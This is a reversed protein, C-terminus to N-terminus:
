SIADRLAAALRELRPALKADITGIDTQLRLDGRALAENARIDVAQAESVAAGLSHRLAEADAPHAEILIRRAGRAEAIAASAIDAIRAADLRLSAGLLREALAVAVGLLRDRDRALRENEEARLAIWRAAVSAEAEELAARRAEAAITAAAERAAREIGEARAQAECVIRDAEARAEIEERAIRRRAPSPPVQPLPLPAATSAEAARIIRPRPTTM